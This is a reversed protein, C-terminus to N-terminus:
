TFGPGDKNLKIASKRKAIIQELQKSLRNFRLARFFAALTVMLLFHILTRTNQKPCFTRNSCSDSNWYKDSPNCVYRKGLKAM